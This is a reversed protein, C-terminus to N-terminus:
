EDRQLGRVRFYEGYEVLSTRDIYQHFHDLDRISVDLGYKQMKMQVNMREHMKHSEREKIEQEIGRPTMKLHREKMQRLEAWEEFKEDLLEYYLKFNSYELRERHEVERNYRRWANRIVYSSCM